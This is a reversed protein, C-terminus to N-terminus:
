NRVHLGSNKLTNWNIGLGEETQLLQFIGQDETTSWCALVDPSKVQSLLNM